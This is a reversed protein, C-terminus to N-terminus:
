GGMLDAPYGVTEDFVSNNFSDNFGSGSLKPLKFSKGRFFGSSARCPEVRGKRPSENGGRNAGM